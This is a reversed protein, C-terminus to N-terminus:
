FRCRYQGVAKQLICEYEHKWLRHGLRLFNLQLLVLTCHYWTNVSLQLVGGVDSNERYITFSIIILVLIHIPGWFTNSNKKNKNTQRKKKAYEETTFTDVCYQKCIGATHSVYSHQRWSYTAITPNLLCLFDAFMGLQGAHNQVCVRGGGGVCYLM